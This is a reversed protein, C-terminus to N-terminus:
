FEESFSKNPTVRFEKVGGILASVTFDDTIYGTYKGSLMNSSSAFQTLAPTGNHVLAITTEQEM